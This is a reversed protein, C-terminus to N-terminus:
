RKGAEKMWPGGCLFDIQIEPYSVILIWIKNGPVKFTSDLIRSFNPENSLDVIFLSARCIKLFIRGGGM